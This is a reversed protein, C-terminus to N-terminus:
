KKKRDRSNILTLKNKNIKRPLNVTLPFGRLSLPFMLKLKLSRSVGTAIAGPVFFKIKTVGNSLSPRLPADETYTFTIQSRLCEVSGTLLLYSLFLNTTSLTQVTNM